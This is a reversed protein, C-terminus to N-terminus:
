KIPESFKPRGYVFLTVITSMAGYFAEVVTKGFPKLKEASEPAMIRLSDSLRLPNEGAKRQETKIRAM